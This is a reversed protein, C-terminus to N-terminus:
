IRSSNYFSELFVERYFSLGRTYAVILRYPSTFDHSFGLQTPKADDNCKVEAARQARWGFSPRKQAKSARDRRYVEEFSKSIDPRAKIHAKLRMKAADSSLATVIAGSNPTLSASLLVILTEEATM